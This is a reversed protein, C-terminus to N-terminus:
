KEDYNRRPNNSRKKRRDKMPSPAGRNIMDRVILNRNKPLSSFKLSFLM